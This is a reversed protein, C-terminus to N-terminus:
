GHYQPLERLMVDVPMFMGDVYDYRITAYIPFLGPAIEVPIESYIVHDQVRYQVVNCMYPAEFWYLPHDEKYTFTHQTDNVRFTYTRSDEHFELTYELASQVALVPDGVPIEELEADLVHLEPELYVTGHRLSLEIVIENEGDGTVDTVWLKPYFNENASNTWQEFTRSREGYILMMDQFTSQIQKTAYLSVGHEPDKALLNLVVDKPQPAQDTYANQDAKEDLIEVNRILHTDSAIRIKLREEFTAQTSDTLTLLLEYNFVDGDEEVEEVHVEQIWPSSVEYRDLVRKSEVDWLNQM